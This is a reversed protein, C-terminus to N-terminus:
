CLACPLVDEQIHLTRHQRKNNPLLIGIERQLGVGLASVAVGTEVSWVKVLMDASGSVVRTGDPSFSVFTVASTHGTLTRVQV